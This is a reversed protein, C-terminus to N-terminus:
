CHCYAHYRIGVRYKATAQWYMAGCQTTMYWNANQFPTLSVSVKGESASTITGVLTNGNAKLTAIHCTLMYLLMKREALDKVMSKETNDLLLCAANFYLTLTADETKAFEPYLTKFEQPDFVVVKDDM